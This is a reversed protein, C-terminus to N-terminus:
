REVGVLLLWACTQGTMKSEITQTFRYIETTVTRSKVFNRIGGGREKSSSFIERIKGRGLPLSDLGDVQIGSM